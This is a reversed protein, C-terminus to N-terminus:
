CLSFAAKFIQGALQLSNFPLNIWPTLKNQLSGLLIQYTSYIMPERM